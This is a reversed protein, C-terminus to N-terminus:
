NNTNVQPTPPTNDGESNPLLWYSHEQYLFTLANDPMQTYAMYANFYDGSGAAINMIGITGIIHLNPFILFLLFPFLGLVINPLLSMFIFRKKSILESSVVFLAGKKLYSYMYVDENYCSAHLIEHPVMLILAILIGISSIGAGSSRIKYLVYCLVFLVGSIIAAILLFRKMDPENFKVAGPYLKQSKLKSYDGDFSGEYHLNKGLKGPIKAFLKNLFDKM